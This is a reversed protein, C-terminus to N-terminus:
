YDFDGGLDLAVSETAKVGGAPEGVRASVAHWPHRM